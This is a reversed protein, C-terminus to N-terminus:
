IGYGALIGIITLFIGCGILLAIKKVKADWHQPRFGPWKGTGAVHLTLLLIGTTLIGLGSIMFLFSTLIM